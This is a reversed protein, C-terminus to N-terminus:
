PLPSWQPFLDTSREAVLPSVQSTQLDVLFLDWGNTDIGIASFVIKTGDPSWSPYGENNPSSTVQTAASGDPHM